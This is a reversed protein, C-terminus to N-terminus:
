PCIQAGCPKGVLQSLARWYGTTPCQWPLTLSMRHPIRHHIAFVARGALLAFKFVENSEGLAEEEGVPVKATEFGLGRARRRALGEVGRERMKHKPQERKHNHSLV